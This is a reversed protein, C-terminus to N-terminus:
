VERGQPKGAPGHPPKGPPLVRIPGRATLQSQGYSTRGTPRVLHRPLQTQVFFNLNPQTAAKVAQEVTQGETLRLLHPASAVSAAQWAVQGDVLFALECRQETYTVKDHKGWPPVGFRRYEMEKTAGPVVRAVLQIPQGPTVKMGNQELKSALSQRIAERQEQTAELQIELTVGVGPKVALLSEADLGAAVATAEEHPLACPVLRQSGNSAETSVFWVYGGLAAVSEATRADEYRYEWLVIRREIDILRTGGLLLYNNALWCAAGRHPALPLEPVAIERMLQGQALDWVLVQRVLVMALQAGDSRFLLAAGDTPSDSLRGMLRGDAARYFELGGSSMVALCQGGPSVAPRSNPLVDITYIAQLPALQWLALQGKLNVVVVHANDTWAAYIIDREFQEQSASPTWGIKHELKEGNWAWVDLRAKTGHLWGDIRTLLRQGDPSLGSPVAHVPMAQGGVTRGETLDCWEFRTATAHGPMGDIHGIVARGLSPAFVISRPSEVARGERGHLPIPQPKLAAPQPAPDPNWTWNPAPQGPVVTRVQSWDGATLPPGDSAPPSREAGAAPRIQSPPLTPTLRMSHMQFEVKIWGTRAIELVKGPRWQGAWNVEVDDGPRYPANQGLAATVALGIMLGLVAGGRFGRRTRAGGASGNMTKGERFATRRM